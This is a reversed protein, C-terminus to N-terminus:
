ALPKFFCKVHPPECRILDIKQRWMFTMLIAQFCTKHVNQVIKTVKMNSRLTLRM